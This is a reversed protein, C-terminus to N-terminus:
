VGFGDGPLRGGITEPAHALLRQYLVDLDARAQVGTRFGTGGRGLLESVVQPPLQLEAAVAEASAAANATAARLHDQLARIVEPRRAALDGRVAVAMLPLSTSGTAARWEAAPDLFRTGPRGAEAARLLALSASPEPLVAFDAEGVAFEAVAEPLQAHYRFRVDVDPRLGGARALLRTLVDTVDGRFAVDVTAGRLAEWPATGAGTRGIGALLAQDLVGLVRVDVGKAALNAAATSPLVAVDVQGGVLGARLEDPTRARSIRVSGVGPLAARGTRLGTLAAEAVVNAVSVIRLADAQPRAGSACAGLVAPLPSLAATRMFTRRKM